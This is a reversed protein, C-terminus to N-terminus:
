SYELTLLGANLKELLLRACNTSGIHREFHCGGGCIPLMPCRKQVCAEINILTQDAIPNQKNPNPLNGVIGDSRGVMSLCKYMEGDPGILWAHPNKAICWPGVAYQKLTSGM